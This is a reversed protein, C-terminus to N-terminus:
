QEKKHKLTFKKKKSFSRTICETALMKLEALSKHQLVLLACRLVGNMCKETPLCKEDRVPRQEFASTIGALSM